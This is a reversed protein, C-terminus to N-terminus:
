PIQIKETVIRNAIVSFAKKGNQWDACVSIEVTSIRRDVPICSYGARVLLNTM